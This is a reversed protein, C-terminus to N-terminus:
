GSYNSNIGIVRTQFGEQNWRDHNLFNRTDIIIKDSVLEGVQKIDIETFIEHDTLLVICNTDSFANEFNSLEFPFDKALPDYISVEYGAKKLLEMINITPSNRTDEVNGKYSAGLLTIRGGDSSSLAKEIKHITYEPQNSNIRRSSEIVSNADDYYEKLFKSDVPICHGGVGPGPKHINVRPHKNALDITEHIDIKLDESMRSLENAFAINVDRYTNEIIKVFEANTATTLSIPGEVIEKYLNKAKKASQRNIGGIVRGSEVMETLLKGPLVREPCHALFFDRGAELGSSELIPAVLNETTGPPCTSELIVLDGIDLCPAISAAAEEVHTLDPSDEKLPTPVAIIFADSKQPQTQLNLNGSKLAAGVLTKLGPEQEIHSNNEIQRIVKADADVGAVQFGSTAFLSSTPLGIFGLGVVTLKEM